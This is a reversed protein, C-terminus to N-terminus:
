NMSELFCYETQSSEQKFVNAKVIFFKSPAPLAFVMSFAINDLLWYDSFM